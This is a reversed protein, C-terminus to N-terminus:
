DTDISAQLTTVCVLYRIYRAWVEGSGPASRVARQYLEQEGDIGVELQRQQSTLKTFHPACGSSVMSDLYGAWFSELALVAGPEDKLVRTAAEAVAREYVGRTCM